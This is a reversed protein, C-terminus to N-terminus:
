LHLEMQIDGRAYTHPYAPLEVFGLKKYIHIAPHLIRNSELFLRKAGAKRATDVVASCLKEGIGLGRVSSSVALKALEYDYTADDHMKLLACVGVPEDKYCAVFIFGGKDIIHEQPNSLYYYDAEELQWHETIWQKNLSYFADHYKDEYPVIAIQASECPRCADTDM